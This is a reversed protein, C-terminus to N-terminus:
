ADKIVREGQRATYATTQRCSMDLGVWGFAQDAEWEARRLRIVPAVNRQWRARLPPKTSLHQSAPVQGPCSSLGRSGPTLDSSSNLQVLGCRM